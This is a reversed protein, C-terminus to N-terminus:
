TSRRVELRNQWLALPAELDNLTNACLKKNDVRCNGAVWVHSVAERGAVYLLHSLPDFCPQLLASGLDVACLDASKGPTISGISHEMGLATAAGLTAMKLVQHAPLAAADQSLAKGLLAALRMESFIDLRNNSAAGDTGFTVPIRHALWDPIPALGSALKLNSTPCHAIHLGTDAMIKLDDGNLHVAHVGLFSPSLVGLRQLRALPREGYQKLSTEIEAGTEHLHCHIPLNLQGALTAIREFSEDSVTYPAHPALCFSIRPHDIWAERAALGKNLYDSFDSAYNTPFDLATMGLVARMGSEDVARAADGPYFYMDNFCTIGGLLMEACALRTGDYVFDPSVHRAEAPWIHQTLWDMLPRDDALGRMLTMAAHTHTNILGPILIHQDLTHTTKAHYRQHAEVSPLVALIKGQHIAIAHNKLTKEQDVTAIWRSEILTDISEARPAM